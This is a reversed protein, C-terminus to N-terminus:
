VLVFFELLVFKISFFKLGSLCVGFLKCCCLFCFVFCVFSVDCDWVFCVFVVFWFWVLDWECGDMGDFLFNWVFGVVGGVLLRKELVYLLGWLMWVVRCFYVWFWFSFRVM